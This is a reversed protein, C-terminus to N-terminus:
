AKNRLVGNVLVGFLVAVLACVGLAIGIEALGPWYSLGAGLSNWTGPDIAPTLTQTSGLAQPLNINPTWFGAEIIQVRKFFVSIIAFIGALILLGPKRTSPNLCIVAAILGLIIQGWFAPAVGGGTLLALSERAGAAGYAMTILDCVYLFLDVLIFVGLLSAFNRVDRDSVEVKDMGKLAMIVAIVLGLGSVLASAVFWPAMLATNWYEKSVQIGFIWATVSHVLIACVFAVISITRMRREAQSTKDDEYKKTMALYVVSLVLYLTLICVDWMLPSSFNGRVLLEWVRLPNGLDVIVFLIAGITCCISTLIAVRCITPSFGKWAFAHPTSSVILGGASLGVFLMFCMIYLGWSNANYMNTVGLGLICQRVWLAVGGIAVLAFVALWIKSKTSLTSM